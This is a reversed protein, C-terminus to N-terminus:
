AFGPHVVLERLPRLARSAQGALDALHPVLAPQNADDSSLPGAIVADASRLAVIAAAVAKHDLGPREERQLLDLIALGTGRCTRWGRWGGGPVRGIPGANLPQFGAKGSRRLLWVASGAVTHVAIRTYRVRCSDAGFARLRFLVAPAPQSIGAHPMGSAVAVLKMSDASLTSPVHRAQRPPAIPLPTVM